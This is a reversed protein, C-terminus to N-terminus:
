ELGSAKHRTLIRRNARYQSGSWTGPLPQQNQQKAGNVLSSTKHNILWHASSVWPSLAHAVQPSPVSLPQTPQPFGGWSVLKEDWENECRRGGGELTENQINTDVSPEETHKHNHLFFFFYCLSCTHKGTNDREAHLKGCGVTTYQPSQQQLRWTSSARICCGPLKM